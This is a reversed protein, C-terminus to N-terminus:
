VKIAKIFNEYIYRHDDKKLHPGVPLAITQDSFKVSNVFNKPYYKYKTKYYKM